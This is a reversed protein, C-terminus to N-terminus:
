LLYQRTLQSKYLIVGPLCWPKAVKPSTWNAFSYSFFVIDYDVSKCASLTVSKRSNGRKWLLNTRTSLHVNVRLLDISTRFNSSVLKLSVGIDLPLWSYFLLHWHWFLGCFNLIICFFNINSVRDMEVSSIWCSRNACM